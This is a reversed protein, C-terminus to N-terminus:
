AGAVDDLRLDLAALRDTGGILFQTSALFRAAAGVMGAAVPEGANELNHILAMWADFCVRVDALEARSFAFVLARVGTLQADERLAREAEVALLEAEIVADPLRGTGTDTPEAPPETV